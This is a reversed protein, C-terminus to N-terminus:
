VCSSGFFLIFWQTVAADQVVDEIDLLICNNRGAELEEKTKVNNERKNKM